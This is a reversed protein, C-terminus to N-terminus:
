WLMGILSMSALGMRAFSVSPWRSSMMHLRPSAASRRKSTVVALQVCSYCELLRQSWNGFCSRDRWRAVRWLLGGAGRCPGLVQSRLGLFNQTNNINIRTVGGQALEGSQSLLM